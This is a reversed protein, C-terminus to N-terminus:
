PFRLGYPTDYTIYMLCADECRAWHVVNADIGWYMGPTMTIEGSSGDTAGVMRGRLLLIREPAPHAHRVFTHGKPARVWFGSAGKQFDGWVLAAECGKQPWAGGCATWQVSGEDVAQVVSVEAATSARVLALAGLLTVFLGSVVQSRTRKM